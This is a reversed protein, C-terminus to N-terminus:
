EEVGKLCDWAADVAVCLGIWLEPTIQYVGPQRRKAGVCLRRAAAVARSLLAIKRATEADGDPKWGPKRGRRIETTEM